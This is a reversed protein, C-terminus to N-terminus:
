YTLLYSNDLIFEYKQAMKFFNVFDDISDYPCITIMSIYLQLNQIPFKVVITNPLKINNHGKTTTSTDCNPLDFWLVFTSFM